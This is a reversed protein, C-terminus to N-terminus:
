PIFRALEAIAPSLFPWAAEAEGDGDGYDRWYAELYVARKAAETLNAVYAHQVAHLAMRDADNATDFEAQKAPDEKDLPMANALATMKEHAARHHEIAQALPVNPAFFTADSIFGEWKSPEAPPTETISKGTDYNGEWEASEDITRILGSLDATAMDFNALRIARLKLALAEIGVVDIALAKAEAEQLRSDAQISAADAATVGLETKLRDSTATYAAMAADYAVRHEREWAVYPHTEPLVRFQDVTLSDFAAKIDPPMDGMDPCPPLAAFLLEEARSTRENAEILQARLKVMGAVTARLEAMKDAESPRSSSAAAKPTAHKPAKSM